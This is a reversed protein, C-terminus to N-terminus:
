KKEDKKDNEDKKPNMKELEKRVDVSNADAGLLELVFNPDQLLEEELQKATKPHEVPNGDAAKPEELSLAQARKFLEEEDLEDLDKEKEEVIKTNEKPAEAKNEEPKIQSEAQKKRDAEEKLRQREREEEMSIRLVMELEPDVNGQGGFDGGQAGFNGGAEGALVPTSLLIDSLLQLGPQVQVYNSNDSNNIAEVLKQLKQNQEPNSTELNVLDLAVSAKKLKKGLAVLSAEDEEIPSAVFCVIRQRQNKNLRHKLSLYAVQLATSLQSKGHLKVGHFSAAVREAEPIPTVLIEVQKGGMLMLGVANEANSACKALAVRNAAEEQSVWRTPNFDGNRAYESNDVIIMTAELVM